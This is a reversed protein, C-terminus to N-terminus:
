VEKVTVPKINSDKSEKWHSYLKQFEFYFGNFYFKFVMWVFRWVFWKWLILAFPNQSDM